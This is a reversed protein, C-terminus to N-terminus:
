EVALLGSQQTKIDTRGADLQHLQAAVLGAIQHQVPTRNLWQRMAPNGVAIDFFEIFHGVRHTSQDFLASRAGSVDGHRQGRRRDNGFFNNQRAAHSISLQFNLDLGFGIM